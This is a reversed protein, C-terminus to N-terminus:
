APNRGSEVYKITLKKHDIVLTGSRITKRLVFRELTKTFEPCVSYVGKDGLNITTYGVSARPYVSRLSREFPDATSNTRRSHRAYVIRQRTVRINETIMDPEYQTSYYPM